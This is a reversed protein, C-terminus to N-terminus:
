NIPSTIMQFSPVNNRFYQIIIYIYKSRTDSSLMRAMAMNKKAANVFFTAIASRHDHKQSVCSYVYGIATNKFHSQLNLRYGCKYTNKAANKKKIHGIAANLFRPQLDHWIIKKKLIVELQTKFFCSYTLDIAVNLFMAIPGTLYNKQIFQM